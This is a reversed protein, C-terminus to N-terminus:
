LRNISNIASTGKTAEKNHALECNLQSIIQDYLVIETEIPLNIRFYGEM